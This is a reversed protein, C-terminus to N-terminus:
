LKNMKSSQFKIGTTGGCEGRGGVVMGSKSEKFKVKPPNKKAAGLPKHSRLERVLSQVGPGHCHFRPTRVM